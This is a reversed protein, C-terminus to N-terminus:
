SMTESWFIEGGRLWIRAVHSLPRKNQRLCRKVVSMTLIYSSEISVLHCRLRYPFTRALGLSRELSLGLADQAAEGPQV